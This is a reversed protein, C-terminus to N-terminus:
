NKKLIFERVKYLFEAKVSDPVSKQAHVIVERTLGEVNMTKTGKKAREKMVERCHQKLEERWGCEVLRDKLLSVLRDKEGTEILRNKLQEQLTETKGIDKNNEDDQHQEQGVEEAAERASM